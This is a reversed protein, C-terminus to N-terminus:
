VRPSGAPHANRLWISVAEARNAAGLKRLIRTIHTKVTGESITLRRAIRANSDGEALLRVIQVERRTLVTDDDRCAAVAATVAPPPASWRGLGDLQARIASMGELVSVKALQQSVGQAFASLLLQDVEDLTRRQHYCDGHVLGVVDGDVLLPAIGYSSSRTIAALPRNVRPNDQVEPVLVARADVVTDNEVLGHDLIPPNERGVAVIDAAWRPDRVVFMTHLQWVGDVTSVLARDFGLGCAAEPVRALLSDVTTADSLQALAGHVRHMRRTQDTLRIRARMTEATRIRDLLGILTTLRATSPDGTESEDLARATVADWLEGLDGAGTTTRQETPDRDLAAYADEAIETIVAHLETDRCRISSNSM